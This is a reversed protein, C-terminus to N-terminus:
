IASAKKNLYREEMINQHHKAHGAIIFGIARVYISSGSAIGSEELQEDDFGEFLKITSKRVIETEEILDQKTRREAKSNPTYANEDFGPLPTQDKRAMRLARYAFIREADIVHQVLEKITWKDEAYAYNWQEEPISQLFDVWEKTYRHLAEMLDNAKVQNIYNHYFPPVRSLDVPNM